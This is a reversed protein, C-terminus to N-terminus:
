YSIARSLFQTLDVGRQLSFLQWVKVVRQLNTNRTGPTENKSEVHPEKICYKGMKKVNQLRLTVNYDNIRVGQHVKCVIMKPMLMLVRISYTDQKLLSKAWSDNQYKCTEKLNKSTSTVQHPPPPPDVIKKCNTLEQM